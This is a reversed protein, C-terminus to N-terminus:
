RPRRDDRRRRALVWVAPLGLACAIAYAVDEAPALWVAHGSMKDAAFTFLRAHIMLSDFVVTLVVLAAGTALVALLHASRRAKPLAAFAVCAVVLAAAALLGVLQPYTM